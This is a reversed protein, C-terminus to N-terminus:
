ADAAEVCDLNLSGSVLLDDYSIWPVFRLWRKPVLILPQGGEPNVPLTIDNELEFENTRYDYVNAVACKALPIGLRHCEQITFDILFSKIFSCAIDSIRDKSVGDVYFQAEEFHRFGRDRYQPIAEFLDIIENAKATGIRKGKRKASSGLGVENCESATVLTTVAKERKGNKALHGLHNFGNIISTHLGQDVLSPSRWLLFPDLYLPIDENFFPIAFDLSTQPAAIGYHDTLRPNILM